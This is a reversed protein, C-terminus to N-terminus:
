TETEDIATIRQLLIQLPQYCAYSSYTAYIDTSLLGGPVDCSFTEQVNYDILYSYKMALRFRSVTPASLIGSTTPTPTMLYTYSDQVFYQNEYYWTYSVSSTWGPLHQASPLYGMGLYVWQTESTRSLFTYSFRAGGNIVYGDSAQRAFFWPTTYFDGSSVLITGDASKITGMGHGVYSLGGVTGSESVYRLDTSAILEGAAYTYQGASSYIFIDYLNRNKKTRCASSYPLTPCYKYNPIDSIFQAPYDTKVLSYYTTGSSTFTSVQYSPLPMYSVVSSLVPIKLYFNFLGGDNLDTGTSAIRDLGTSGNEFIYIQNM